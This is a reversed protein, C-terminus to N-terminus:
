GVAHGLRLSLEQRLTEVDRFLITHMGLLRAPELNRELDDIFVTEPGEVQLLDLALRYIEDEPKARGVEWSLVVADWMDGLGAAELRPRLDQATNSLIGLRYRGVLSRVLGAMQPDAWDEQYYRRYLEPVREPSLGLGGGVERWYEEESIRGREARHWAEGQYLVAQLRGSPLGFEAELSQYFHPERWPTLVRGYDFLIARIRGDNQM